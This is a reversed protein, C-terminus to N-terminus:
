PGGVGADFLGRGQTAGQQCRQVGGVARHPDVQTWYLAHVSGSNRHQHFTQPMRFAM